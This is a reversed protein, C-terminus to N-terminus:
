DHKSYAAKAIVIIVCSIVAVVGVVILIVVTQNNSDIEKVEKTDKSEQNSNDKNPTSSDSDSDGGSSPTSAPDTVNLEILCKVETYHETDDPTFVFETYYGDTPVVDPELATWTGSIPLNTDPDIVVGGSIIVDKISQGPLIPSATPQESIKPRVKQPASPKSPDTVTVKIMCFAKEYRDTDDPTFILKVSDGNNPTLDPDEPAWSGPIPTNTDPDVVDGGIITATKISQGPLLSSVTPAEFVRPFVKQPTDPENPDSPPVTVTFTVTHTVEKYYDTNDPTFIIEATDGNLPVFDPNAYAWTGSVSTGNYPDIVAGGVITAYSACYGYEIPSATPPTSVSPSIKGTYAKIRANTPTSFASTGDKWTGKNLYITQGESVKTQSTICLGGGFKNDSITADVMINAATKVSVVFTEGAQLLVPSSLEITNLGELFVGSSSYIQTGINKNDVYGKYITLEYRGDRKDYAISEDYLVCVSVATLPETKKATFINAVATAYNTPVMTKSIGGDHSYITSTDEAAPVVDYATGGKLTADEYSLWFYGNLGWDNGWSNKVLWAGNQSPRNGIKFNNKNYNDDWGVITVAHDATKSSDSCYQAYSRTSLYSENSYYSVFVAGYEMIAAKVSDPDEKIDFLHANKIRYSSEYMDSSDLAARNENSFENFPAVSEDAFGIGNALTLISLMAEGGRDSYKADGEETYVSDGTGQRDGFYSFYALHWESLDISDAAVGHNKIADAEACAVAAFAWCLGTNRQDKVSTNYLVNDPDNNYSSPLTADDSLPTAQTAPSAAAADIGFAGFLPCIFLLLALFAAIYKKNM